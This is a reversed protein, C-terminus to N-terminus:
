QATTLTRLQSALVSCYEREVELQAQVKKVLSGLYQIASRLKAIEASNGNV